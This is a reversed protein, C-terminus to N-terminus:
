VIAPLTTDWHKVLISWDFPYDNPSGYEMSKTAAFHSAWSQGFHVLFAGREIAFDVLTFTFVAGILLVLLRWICNGCSAFRGPFGCRHVEVRGVHPGEGWRGYRRSATPQIAPQCGATGRSVGEPRSGVLSLVLAALLLLYGPVLKILLASGFLAGAILAGVMPSQLIAALCHVDRRKESERRGERRQFAGLWA